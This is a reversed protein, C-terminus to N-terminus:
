HNNLYDICQHYTSFVIGEYEIQHVEWTDLDNIISAFALFCSSKNDIKCIHSLIAECKKMLKTNKNKVISILKNRKPNEILHLLLALQIIIFEEDEKNKFDNSAYNVKKAVDYRKNLFYTSHYKYRNLRYEVDIDLVLAQLTQAFRPTYKDHNPSLIIPYGEEIQQIHFLEHFLNIEFEKNPLDTRLYIIYKNQNSFWDVAGYVTTKLIKIDKFEIPKNFDPILSNLLIESKKSLRHNLINM